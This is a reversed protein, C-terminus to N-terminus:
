SVLQKVAKKMLIKLESISLAIKFGSASIYEIVKSLAPIAHPWKFCNLSAKTNKCSNNDVILLM